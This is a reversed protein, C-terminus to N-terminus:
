LKKTVECLFSTDNWSPPKTKYITGNGTKGVYLKGSDATWNCLLLSDTSLMHEYLFMSGYDELSATGKGEKGIVFLKPDSSATEWDDYIKGVDVVLTAIHM